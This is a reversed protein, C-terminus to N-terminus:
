KGQGDPKVFRVFIGKDGERIEAKLKRSRAAAYAAAKSVSDLPLLYWQGPTKAISEWDVTPSRGLRSEPVDDAKVTQPKYM